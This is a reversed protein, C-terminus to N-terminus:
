AAAAERVAQVHRAHSVALPGHLDELRGRLRELQVVRVACHEGVVAIKEESVGDVSHLGVLPTLDNRQPALNVQETTPGRALYDHGDFM